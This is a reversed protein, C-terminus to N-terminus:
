SNDMLLLAVHTGHEFSCVVEMVLFLLLLGAMELDSNTLKGGNGSNTKRVEEKIDYPWELRFVTPVCETEQGIIIGGVGHVSADKVGVFDPAGMVLERCATPDRTAEHIITRCDKIAQLLKKNRKLFVFPPEKALINNCPSLLGKGSPISV